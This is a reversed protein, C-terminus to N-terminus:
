PRHEEREPNDAPPQRVEDHLKRITFALSEPDIGIRRASDDLSGELLSSARCAREVFDIQAQPRVAVATEKGVADGRKFFVLAFVRPRPFVLREGAGAEDAAFAFDASGEVCQAGFDEGARAVPGFEGVFDDGHAFFHEGGMRGFVAVDFISAAAHDIHFEDHLVQYQSIRAFMRLQEVVVAVDGQEVDGGIGTQYIFRQGFM